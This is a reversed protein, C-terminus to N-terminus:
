LLKFDVCVRHMRPSSQGCGVINLVKFKKVKKKIKDVSKEFEGEAQFDYFHVTANKKAVKLASELYRDASKPLPMVIRDFKAKIKKIEKKADGKILQINKIKNLKINEVAYKHAIPNLEIGYIERADSNKAIVMPYIAIGSFMVLVKENPKVLRAIRLRENSLRPSFYCKEVDLKIIAGNEKHLTEKTGEGAIIKIKKTRYRGKHMKIKKAVTKVNKNLEMLKEAIIKEKRALAQPFDSFIAISGVVDFSTPVLRLEKAPLRGKLADKLKTM